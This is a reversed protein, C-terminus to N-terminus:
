EEELLNNTENELQMNITELGAIGEVSGSIHLSNQIILELQKEKKKWNKEYDEREKQLMNRLQKFGDRMANWNLTFEASTLYNYLAVMKDGKNEQNKKTESIKIIANRLVISLSKVESFSCIYIGNKEGFQTMDKPMARTVLVAIDARQSLMDRKLKELWDMGFHETRKSEYIISGCVQGQNNRVTQICDAGKVGKGVETILDFPFNNKLLDELAQEQVEGQLQMSGQEHKRKMEDALKKQDELQKELERIKLAHETDRLANKEIEQKRIQETLLNREEQLKKQLEIELEAEKLKLAQAQKYFEVEKERAQKLRTENDANQTQLLKLQAEFDGAINKRLTAEMNERLRKKEVEMKEIYEEDKKTRWENMKNRLEKEVEDRIADGPEFLHGCKPCKIEQPM